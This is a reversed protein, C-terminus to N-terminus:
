KQPERPLRQQCFRQGALELLRAESAIEAPYPYRAAQKEFSARLAAARKGNGEALLALAYQTRLISPHGRMSRMFKKQAPTLLALAAETEGELLRLFVLDCTLLQRHLGLLGTKAALLAEISRRAPLFAEQDMQRNCALVSVAARLPDDPAPLDAFWADPMDALRTGQSLQENVKLQLWFARRAQPSRVLTLANSGDNAILRSRLPLGNALALAAGMLAFFLFAPGICPTRGFAAWLGWFALASALNLLCGGLNYLIVPISEERWDPPAMLCQGSTGALTLRRLRLRGKERLIMLSGLRYSCFRYGTLLGFILHGAEHIAMQGLIALYLELFLLGLYILRKGPQGPFSRLGYEMMLWGCLMGAALMIGLVLIQGLKESRKTTKM